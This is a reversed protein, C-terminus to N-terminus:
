LKSGTQCLKDLSLDSPGSLKKNQAQASDARAQSPEFVSSGPM